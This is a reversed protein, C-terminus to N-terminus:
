TRRYLVDRIVDVMAGTEKVTLPNGVGGATRFRREKARSIRDDM